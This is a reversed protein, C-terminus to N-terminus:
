RYNSCRGMSKEYGGCLCKRGGWIVKRTTHKDMFQLNAVVMSGNPIKSPSFALIITELATFLENSLLLKLECPGSRGHRGNLPPKVTVRAQYYFLGVGCDDEM